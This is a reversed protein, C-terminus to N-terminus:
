RGESLISNAVSSGCQQGLVVIDDMRGSQTVTLGGVSLSLSSLNPPSISGELYSLVQRMTPRSMPDLLSCLFGLKLVLDVENEVYNGGLKHDIARVIEGKSWWFFVWEILTQDDYPAKSEIPRRGCAVELLFAGFAFVDTSTTTKGTRVHEPAIYGLTGAAYTTQPNAGHGYYRALGFDGLRGNMEGDLMVNSAKIDRHIVVQEWGEHLYFLASAVGKIVHFRQEWSLSCKPNDFLYSDLSGNPMFEYVLLLEGQHRCYGLLPVLNRHCLRGLSVIEAKFAKLGQRTDHCVRKIAVQRKSNAVIGRYVRGFGGTGLLENESFRKTATCLEKYKFRHPGYELEWEEHSEAFKRKRLVYYVVGSSIIVLLVIPLGIELFTQKWKPEIVRPLEPFHSPDLEQAKGNMKFSWGLVYHTTLVAGTSASFGISATESIAPSLDYPLSLIPKKPKAMYLPALTVNMQKARGDYEVWVQIPKGSSLSLNHFLNGNKYDYYGAPESLISKLGNIDIGVHNDNVDDFEGSQHSDLEVAVVHNTANGNNTYNFLGLYSGRLAGPLGGPPVIAFALGHGTVSASKPVIAIVFTTSFSSASGNSSNKFRIPLPYFARGDELKTDNTLQLLGNSKIEALGDLSLNASQFGNYTFGFDQSSVAFCQLAASIVVCLVLKLFMLM